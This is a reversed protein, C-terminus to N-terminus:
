HASDAMGERGAAHHESRQFALFQHVAAIDKPDTSRISVEAGRPRDIAEYGIQERRATMEATGPVTQAHVQFPKAFDGARFAKAIDRTM